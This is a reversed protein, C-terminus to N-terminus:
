SIYGSLFDDGRRYGPGARPGPARGPLDRERRDMFGPGGHPLVDCAPRTAGGVIMAHRQGIARAVKAGRVRKKREAKGEVGRIRAIIDKGGAEAAAAVREDEPGCARYRAGPRHAGRGRGAVDGAVM